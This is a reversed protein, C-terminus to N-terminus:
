RVDRRSCVARIPRLSPAPPIGLKRRVDHFLALGAPGEAYRRKAAHDPGRTTSIPSMCALRLSQLWAVIVGPPSRSWDISRVLGVVRGRGALFELGCINVNVM